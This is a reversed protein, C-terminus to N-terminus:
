AKTLKYERREKYEERKGENWQRIPRLYGVIRSFVECNQYNRLEPAKEFCARCKLVSISREGEKYVALVGNKITKNKVLIEKQCDHCYNNLGNMNKRKSTM